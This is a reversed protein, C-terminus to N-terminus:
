EPLGERGPSPDKPRLEEGLEASVPATPAGGRLEGAGHADGRHRDLAAFHPPEDPPSPGAVPGVLFHEELVGPTGGLKGSGLALASDASYLRELGARALALANAERVLVCWRKSIFTIDSPFISQSRVFLWDHAQKLTKLHRM